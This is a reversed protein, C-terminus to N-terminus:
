QDNCVAYEYRVFTKIILTSLSPTFKRFPPIINVLTRPLNDRLIRLIELMDEKHEKLIKKPNFGNKYCNVSCFDNHGIFVTIM